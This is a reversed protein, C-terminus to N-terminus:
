TEGSKWDMHILHFCEPLNDASVGYSPAAAELVAAYTVGDTKYLTFRDEQEALISRDSGTLAYISLLKEAKDFKENWVFFTYVGAGETVSVRPAWEENLTLYWGGDFNHFTYRRNIEEGDLTMTYWRILHRTSVNSNNQIPIMDILGPLELAGDSDIDVAYVYRNRLTQISAGSENSLSVNTFKGDKVAFVDTIIASEAASSAVYVASIGGYLRSVMIRKINEVQESLRAERSRSITGDRYCYLTAVAVDEDQDGPSIVMLDTLSDQDLDVTVFKSYNVAMLQECSGSAFTYVALNRLVQDSLQRGVVLEKGPRGDMDVYEVLEYDAGRSEITHWLTYDEGQRQFIFIKLPLDTSGEAFLLYEDEGDGDLDAMQVTQPNDGSLPACYNMGSMVRDIAKQLEQYAASRRPVAYMQDVTKMGCGTLLLAVFVFVALHKIRNKM